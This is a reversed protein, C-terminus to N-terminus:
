EKELIEKVAEWLLDCLIKNQKVTIIGEYDMSGIQWDDATRMITDYRGVKDHEDIFEIMEGSSIDYEGKNWVDPHLLYDHSTMWSHLKDWQADSLEKKIQEGTIQQKM